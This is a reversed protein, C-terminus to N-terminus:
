RRLVPSLTPFKVPAAQSAFRVQVRLTFPNDLMLTSLFTKLVVVENRMGIGQEVDRADVLYDKLVQFPPNAESGDELVGTVWIDVLQGEAMFRWTGLSVPVREPATSLLFSGSVIGAMQVQPLHKSLQSVTLEVPPSPYDHRKDGSAVYRVELTTAGQALINEVPIEFERERGPYASTAVFYGPDGPKGWEVRLTEDPYVVASAPVQVLLPPILDNIALRLQADTGTAQDIGPLEFTRTAASVVLKLPKAFPSLNGARDKIAYYLYRDGDGRQLILESTFDIYFPGGIDAYTIEHEGAYTEAFPEADWYYIITDGAKPTMYDPVQTRLRQDHNRLYRETLGDRELEESDEVLTLMGQAGGLIPPVLDILLQFVESPSTDGNSGTVKYSLAHAGNSLKAKPVSFQLDKAPVPAEWAKEYVLFTDDWFVKLLEAEGPGPDSFPWMPVEVTLDHETASTPLLNTDGGPIDDLLAPVEVPKLLQEDNIRMASM